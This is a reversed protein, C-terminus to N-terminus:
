ASTWAVLAPAAPERDHPDLTALASVAYTAYCDLLARAPASLQDRPTPASAQKTAGRQPAFLAADLRRREVHAPLLSRAAQLEVDALALKTLPGPQICLPNHQFKWACNGAGLFGRFLTPAAAVAEKITEPDAEVTQALFEPLTQLVGRPALAELTAAKTRLHRGRLQWDVDPLVPRLTPTAPHAELAALKTALAMWTRLPERLPNVVALHEPYVLGAEEALQAGGKKTMTELFAAKLLGSGYCVHGAPRKVYSIDFWTCPSPNDVGQVFGDSYVHGLKTKCGLRTCTSEDCYDARTAAKHHCALCEDLPIKVAMSDPIAEGRALLEMEQDAVLGGNREAAEKTGNLITLLDIRQMPKNFFSEKVYGYSEAPNKNAHGRYARAHTVFTPHDATCTKETFGDANRNLGYGETTGLAIQHVPIDGRALKIRKCRWAVDEGARKVLDAYDKGVLGRSAYKVPYTTSENWDWDGSSVLKIHM